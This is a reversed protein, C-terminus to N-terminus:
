RNAKVFETMEYKGTLDTEPHVERIELHRRVWDNEQYELHHEKRLPFSDWDPPLLIRRLDPHHDFRVGFMDYAERELWNATGWLDTVSELSEGDSFGAKVRLRVHRPFSYLHYVIEFPQPKGPYHVATLDTLFDFQTEPDDRLFRLVEHARDRAVRIMQQGLLEVAEQLAEGFQAKLKKIIPDASIDNYTPGAPKAPPKAAAPKAPPSPKAPTEAVAAPKKEAPPPTEKAVPELVAPQDAQPPAAAREQLDPPKAPQAQEEVEQKLSRSTVTKEIPASAEVPPSSSQPSVPEATTGPESTESGAPTSPPTKTEEPM